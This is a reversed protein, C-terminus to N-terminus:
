EDDLLRPRFPKRHPVVRAAAPAPTRARHEPLEAQAPDAQALERMLARDRAHRLATPLHRSTSVSGMASMSLRMRLALLAICSRASIGVERIFSSIARM